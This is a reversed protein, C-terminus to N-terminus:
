DQVRRPPRAAVHKAHPGVRPSGRLYVPGRWTLAGFALVWSRSRPKSTRTRTGPSSDTRCHALRLLYRGPARSGPSLCSSIGRQSADQLVSALSAALSCRSNAAIDIPTRQLNSVPDSLVSVLQQVMAEAARVQVAGVQLCATAADHVRASGVRKTAASVCQLECESPRVVGADRRSVDRSLGSVVVWRNSSLVQRARRAHDCSYNDFSPPSVFM